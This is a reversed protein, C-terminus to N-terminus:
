VFVARIYLLINKLFGIKPFSNSPFTEVVFYGGRKIIRTGECYDGTTFETTWKKGKVNELILRYSTNPKLNGFSGHKTSFNGNEAVWNGELDEVLYKVKNNSDIQLYISKDEYLSGLDIKQNITTFLLKDNPENADTVEFRNNKRFINYINYFCTGSSYVSVHDFRAKPDLIINKVEFYGKDNDITTDSQLPGTDDAIGASSMLEIKGNPTKPEGKITLSYTEAYAESCCGLFLSLILFLIWQNKSM